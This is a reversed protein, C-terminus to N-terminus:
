QTSLCHGHIGAGGDAGCHWGPLNQPEAFCHTPCNSFGCCQSDVTGRSSTAYQDPWCVPWYFCPCCGLLLLGSVQLGSTRGPPEKGATRALSPYAEWNLLPAAEEAGAAAPKGDAQAAAGAAAGQAAVPQSREHRGSGSGPRGAACPEVDSEDESADEVDWDDAENGEDSLDESESDDLLSIVCNDDESCGAAGQRAAPLGCGGSGPPDRQGQQGEYWPEEKPM